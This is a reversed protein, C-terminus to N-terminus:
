PEVTIIYTTAPTSADGQYFLVTTTYDASVSGITVINSVQGAISEGYTETIWDKITTSTTSGLKHVRNASDFLTGDDTIHLAIGNGGLLDLRDADMDYRFLQGGGSLSEGYHGCAYKGYMSLGSINQPCLFQVPEVTMFTKGEIDAFLKEWKNLDGDSNQGLEKFTYENTNGVRTWKAAFWMNQTNMLRGYIYKGDASMKDPICGQYMHRTVYGEEYINSTSYTGPYNLDIRRNNRMIYPIYRAPFFEKDQGNDVANQTEYDTYMTGDGACGNEYPKGNNDISHVGHAMSTLVGTYNPDILKDVEVVIVATAKQGTVWRGNESCHRGFTGGQLARTYVKPTGHAQTVVFTAEGQAPNAAVITLTASRDVLSRSPTTAIRLTNDPRKETVVWPADNRVDWQDTNDISLVCTDISKSDFRYDNKDIAIPRTEQTQKTDPDPTEKDKGCSSCIIAAAMMLLLLKKM